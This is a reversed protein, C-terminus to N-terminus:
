FDSQAGVGVDNNIIQDKRDSMHNQDIWFLVVLM